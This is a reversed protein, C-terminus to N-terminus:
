LSAAHSSFAAKQAKSSMGSGSMIRSTAPWGDALLAVRGSGSDPGNEDAGFVAGFVAGFDAGFDAGFVASFDVICPLLQSPIM